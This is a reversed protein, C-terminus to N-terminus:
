TSATKTSIAASSDDRPEDHIDPSSANRISLALCNSGRLQKLHRPPVSSITCGIPLALANGAHAQQARVEYRMLEARVGVVGKDDCNGLGAARFDGASADRILDAGRGQEDGIRLFALRRPHAVALLPAVAREIQRPRRDIRHALAESHLR